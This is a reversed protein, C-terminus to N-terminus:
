PTETDKETPRHNFDTAVQDWIERGRVNNRPIFMERGEPQGTVIPGPRTAVSYGYVHNLYGSESPSPPFRIPAPKPKLAAPDFALVMSDRTEGLGNRMTSSVVLTTYGEARYVRTVHAWSSRKAEFRTHHIGSRVLPPAVLAVAALALILLVVAETM